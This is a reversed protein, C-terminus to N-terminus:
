SGIVCRVGFGSVRYDYYGSFVFSSLFLMSYASSSNYVSSSWFYGYNGQYEFSSHWVGSFVGRFAGTPQWSDPTNSLNGSSALDKDNMSANLVAFDADKFGNTTYLTPLRWNAPCISNPATEGLDELDDGSAATSATWNYLFGCKTITNSSMNNSTQTGQCYNVGSQDENIPDVYQGTDTLPMQGTWIQTASFGPQNTGTTDGNPKYKLNDLMWCKNDALRAVYYLQSDRSDRFITAKNQDADEDGNLRLPLDQCTSPTLNQLTPFNYSTYFVKYDEGMETNNIKVTKEGNTM